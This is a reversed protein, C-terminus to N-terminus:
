NPASKGTDYVETADVPEPERLWRVRLRGRATRLGSNYRRKLLLYM